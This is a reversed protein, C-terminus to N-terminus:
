VPEISIDLWWLIWSMKVIVNEVLYSLVIVSHPNIQFVFLDGCMVM